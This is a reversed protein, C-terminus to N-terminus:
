SHTTQLWKYRNNWLRKNSRETMGFSDEVRNFYNNAPPTVASLRITCTDWAKQTAQQLMDVQDKSVLDPNIKYIVDAIASAAMLTALKQFKTPIAIVYIKEDTETFEDTDITITQGYAQDMTLTYDTDEVLVEEEGEDDVAVVRIVGSSEAIREPFYYIQSNANYNFNIDWVFLPFGFWSYILEEAEDIFTDIDSVVEATSVLQLRAQVTASSTLDGM